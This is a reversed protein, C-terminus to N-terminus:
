KFQAKYEDDKDLNANKCLIWVRECIARKWEIPFKTFDYAYPLSYNVNWVMAGTDTRYGDWYDFQEIIAKETFEPAESNGLWVEEHRVFYAECAQIIEDWIQYALEQQRYPLRPQIM